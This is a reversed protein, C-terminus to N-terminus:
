GFFIGNIIIKPDAQTINANDKNKDWVYIKLKLGVDTSEKPNICATKLETVECYYKEM